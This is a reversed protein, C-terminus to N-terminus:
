QKKPSEWGNLCLHLRLRTASTVHSVNIHCSEQVSRIDM